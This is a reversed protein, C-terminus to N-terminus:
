DVPALKSGVFDNANHQIEATDSISTELENWEATGLHIFRGISNFGALHYICIYMSKYMFRPGPISRLACPVLM